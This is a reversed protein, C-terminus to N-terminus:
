EPKRRMMQHIGSVEYWIAALWFSVLSEFLSLKMSYIWISLLIVFILRGGFGYM